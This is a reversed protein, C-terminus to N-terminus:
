AMVQKLWASAAPHWRSVAHCLMVCCLPASTWEGAMTVCPACALSVWDQLCLKSFYFRDPSLPLIGQSGSHASDQGPITKTQPPKHLTQPPPKISSIYPAEPCLLPEVQVQQPSYPSLLLQKPKDKQHCGQTNSGLMLTWSSPSCPWM